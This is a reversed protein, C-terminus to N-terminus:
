VLRFVLKPRGILTFTQGVTVIGGRAHTLSLQRVRVRTLRVPRDLQRM